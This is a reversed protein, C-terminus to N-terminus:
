ETLGQPGTEPDSRGVLQTLCFPNRTFGLPSTYVICPAVAGGLKSCLPMAM